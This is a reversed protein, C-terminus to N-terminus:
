KPKTFLTNGSYYEYALKGGFYALSVGAGIPGMFGIVGFASDVLFETGSIQNDYYQYGTLALGAGGIIKGGINAGKAVKLQFVKNARSLQLASTTKTGYKYVFTSNAKALPALADTYTGAVNLSNDVTSLNDDFKKKFNSGKKGKTPPDIGDDDSM